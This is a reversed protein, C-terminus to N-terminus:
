KTKTKVSVSDSVSFVNRFKSKTSMWPQHTEEHCSTIWKDSGYAFMVVPVQDSSKYLCDPKNTKGSISDFRSLKQIRTLTLYIQLDVM